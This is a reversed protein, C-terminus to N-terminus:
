AICSVYGKLRCLFVVLKVTPYKSSEEIELEQKIINVM